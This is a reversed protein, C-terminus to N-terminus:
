QRHCDMLFPVADHRVELSDDGDQGILVNRRSVIKEDVGKAKGTPADISVVFTLRNMALNEHTASGNPEMAHRSFMSEIRGQGNIHRIRTEEQVDRIDICVVLPSAGSAREDIRLRDILGVALALVARPIEFSM